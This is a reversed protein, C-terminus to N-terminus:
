SKTKKRLQFFTKDVVWSCNPCNPAEELQVHCLAPFNEFPLCDAQNKKRLVDWKKDSITLIQLSWIALYTKSIHTGYFIHNVGIAM